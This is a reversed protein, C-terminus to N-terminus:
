ENKEGINFMKKNLREKQELYEIRTNTIDLQNKFHKELMKFAYKKNENQEKLLFDRYKIIFDKNNKNLSKYEESEIFRKLYYIQSDLSSM